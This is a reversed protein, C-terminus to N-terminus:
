KLFSALLARFYVIDKDSDFELNILAKTPCSTVNILFINKGLIRFGLVQWIGPNTLQIKRRKYTEM